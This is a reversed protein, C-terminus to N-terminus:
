NNRLAIKASQVSETNVKAGLIKRSCMWTVQVLKTNTVFAPTYADFTNSIATHQYKSFELFDCGQLLTNTQGGSVRVLTRREPDYIFSLPNNDVDAFTLSTSTFDTLSQAQRVERSMKDLAFQSAQDLDVYNAIAAFSRSSFWTLAGVIALALVGLASAVMVEILTFGARRPTPRTVRHAGSNGQAARVSHRARGHIKTFM